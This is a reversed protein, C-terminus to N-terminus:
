SASRPAVTSVRPREAAWSCRLGVITSSLALLAGLYIGQLLTAGLVPALALGLATTLVLQIPMGITAVRGLQRLQARSFEAGLSFMLFAVGIQALVQVSQVHATLGPTLPGILLGALLYGVIVSQGLRQALVGGAFAALVAIALDPILQLETM